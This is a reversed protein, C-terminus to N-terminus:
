RLRSTKSSLILDFGLISRWDQVKFASTRLFSATSGHHRTKLSVFCARGVEIEDNKFVDPFTGTAKRQVECRDKSM